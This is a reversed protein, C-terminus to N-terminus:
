TGQRLKRAYADWPRQILIPYLLRVPFPLASKMHARDDDDLPELLMGFAVAMRDKPIYSRSHEGMEEWEEQTLTVAALPVIQQEEDDLHPQLIANLHDLRDALATGNEATPAARWGSCAASVADIGGTVEQHQQEVHRVADAREPVREVLLPYLLDDESEHHHHLMSIGFDIHDALFAVREPSPSPNARLLGATEAYMRRFTEHVIKMDRVDIPQAPSM